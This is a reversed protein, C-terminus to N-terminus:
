IANRIKEIVPKTDPKIGHWVRFSEAAQEVLMGLGDLIISAGHAHAWKMFVTATNSYMLDYCCANRNLIHQPLPPLKGDLSLSTANIILDVDTNVLAEYGCGQVVVDACFKEALAVARSVTRNAIIIHKPKQESLPQLISKVTGGAGLILVSKGTISIRNNDILDNILGQGDTTDGHIADGSFWVTNVSVARKARDTLVDCISCAEEKFPVTINLGKGSQSFFAQLYANFHDIPVEIAQYSLEIGFQGAFHTHIVPSQSHKVPNGFVAYNDTSVDLGLDVSM